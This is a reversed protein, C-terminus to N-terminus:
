AQKEGEAVKDDRRICLQNFDMRCDGQKPRQHPHERSHQCGVAGTQEENRNREPAESRQFGLAERKGDADGRCCWEQERSARDARM